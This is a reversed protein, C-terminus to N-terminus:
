VMWQLESEQEKDLLPGQSESENTRGTEVIDEGGKGLLRYIDFYDFCTRIGFETEFLAYNEYIGICKM